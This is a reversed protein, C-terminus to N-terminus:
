KRAAIAKAVKAFEGNVRTKEIDANRTLLSSVETLRSTLTSEVSALKDVRKNVKDLGHAADVGNSAQLIAVTATAAALGAAMTKADNRAEAAQRHLTKIVNQQEVIRALLLLSHSANCDLVHKEVAGATLVAVCGVETFPCTAPRLHCSHELHAFMGRRTVKEGCTRTCFVEHWACADIHEQRHVVSYETECGANVCMEHAFQCSSGCNLRSCHYKYGTGRRPATWSSGAAAGSTRPDDGTALGPVDHRKIAALALQRREAYSFFAHAVDATRRGLLESNTGSAFLNSVTSGASSCSEKFPLLLGNILNLLSYQTPPSLSERRPPKPPLASSSEEGTDISVIGGAGAGADAAASSSSRVKLAVVVEASELPETRPSSRGAGSTTSSGVSSYHDGSGRDNDNSGDYDSLVEVCSLKLANILRIKLANCKQEDFSRPHAVTSASALANLLVAAVDDVVSLDCHDCPLSTLAVGGTVMSVDFCQWRLLRRRRTFHLLTKTASGLTTYGVGTADTAPDRVAVSLRAVSRAREKQSAREVEKSEVVAPAAESNGIAAIAAAEEDEEQFSNDNSSGQRQAQVDATTQEMHILLEQEAPSMRPDSLFVVSGRRNSLKGLDSVAENFGSFDVAYSWGEGDVIGDNKANQWDGQEWFWGPSSVAESYEGLTACGWEGDRNSHLPLSPFLNTNHACLHVLYTPDVLWSLTLSLRLTFLPLLPFPVYRWAERDHVLLSKSWGSFPYFRECEFCEVLRRINSM